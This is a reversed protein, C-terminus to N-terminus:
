RKENNKILGLNVHCYGTPNKILYDQHYEEAPYYNDLPLIEIKYDKNLNNDFYDKIIQKESKDIYYVGSRYQHGIDHAQKDVSYPDVFRLFHELIKELSILSDDYTLKLTEAHSAKGSKLEEYKPNEINGNAYGVETDIVGKLLQYYRETGWFCGGALYITKKM